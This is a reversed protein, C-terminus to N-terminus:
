HLCCWDVMKKWKLHRLCLHVLLFLAELGSYSRPDLVTHLKIAAMSTKKTVLFTLIKPLLMWSSIVLKLILLFGLTLNTPKLNLCITMKTKSSFTSWFSVTTKVQTRLPISTVYRAKVFMIRM